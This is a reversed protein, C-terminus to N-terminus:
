LSQLVMLVDRICGRYAHVGPHANVSGHAGSSRECREVTQVMKIEAELSKSEDKTRGCCMWLETVGPSESLRRNVGDVVSTAAITRLIYLYV